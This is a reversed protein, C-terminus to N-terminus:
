RTLAYSQRQDRARRILDLKWGNDQVVEESEMRSISFGRQRAGEILISAWDGLDPSRGLREKTEDKSEVEIRDGKVRKWERSCLEHCVEETLGRMQGSEIVYRVSFHLESVRKSYHEDCRKLRKRRLKEDYIFLDALVPRPTPAGGFEVPNCDHRWLRAFSTGLSGRGTSDHFVNAAPIGIRECDSKVYEAIQDEPLVRDEVPVSKPYLRVPIVRPQTLCLILHNNIDLGFEGDGGICRDGGYGADVAYIKTRPEGKWIVSEMAKFQIVMDRTVVRRLSIGPRRVGMAQNWYEASEKGWYDVIRDIDAQQILYTFKGPNRVAPSDTGVFNITVGGMRNKWTTTKTIEPLNDWGEIPESVKDLPDGEGIPNGSGVFKFDGKDLNALSSLFHQSYFQLEDALVRRRKQKIGLFKSLGKWQGTSDLVPIAILGRRTDRVDDSDEIADTYIAHHSDVMNGPCDPWREKAIEYLAKIEGWVRLELGRIDTSSMLVLTERPFCFYDCLAYRAMGTTKGSDKSGMVSTVRNELITKLVIDSWDHHDYSPFLLSQLARYHIFLSTGHAVCFDQGKRIM